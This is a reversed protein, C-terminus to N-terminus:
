ETFSDQTVSFDEVYCGVLDFGNEYRHLIANKVAERIENRDMFSIVHNEEASVNLTVKLTITM